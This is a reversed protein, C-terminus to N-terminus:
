RDRNAMVSPLNELWCETDPCFQHIYTKAPQGVCPSIHTPTWLLVKSMFEDKSRWAHRTWRVQFTQAIPLLYSYLQQKTPHQKLIQEFCWTADKCLQWRTKERFIENSNLLHLRVTTSVHLHSPLFGKRDWRLSWIEIHNIVPRYCDM